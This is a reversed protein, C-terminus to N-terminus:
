APNEPALQGKSIEEDFVVGGRSWDQGVPTKFNSNMPIAPVNEDSVSFVVIGGGNFGSAVISV